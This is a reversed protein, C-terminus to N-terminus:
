SEFGHSIDLQTDAMQSPLYHKSAVESAFPNGDFRMEGVLCQESRRLPTKGHLSAAIPRDPFGSLKGRVFTDGLHGRNM